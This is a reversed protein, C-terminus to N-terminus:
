VQTNSMGFPGTMLGTGMGPGAYQGVLGSIGPQTPQNFNMYPFLQKRIQDAGVGGYAVYESGVMDEIPNFAPPVIQQVQASEPGDGEPGPGVPGVSNPDGYAKGVHAALGMLGLAPVGTLMGLAQLGSAVPNDTIADMIGGFFGRDSTASQNSQDDHSGFGYDSTSKGVTGVSVGSQGASGAPGGGNASSSGAGFGTADGYDPM